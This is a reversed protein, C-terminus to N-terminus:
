RGSTQNIESLLNVVTACQMIILVFGEMINGNHLQEAAIFLFSIVAFIPQAMGM